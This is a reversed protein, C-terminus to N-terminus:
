AKGRKLARRALEMKAAHTAAQMDEDSPPPGAFSASVTGRMVRHGAPDAKSDQYEWHLCLLFDNTMEKLVRQQEDSLKKKRM